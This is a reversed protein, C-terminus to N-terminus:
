VAGPSGAQALMPLDIRLARGQAGRPDKDDDSSGAILARTAPAHVIFGCESAALAAFYTDTTKKSSSWVLM